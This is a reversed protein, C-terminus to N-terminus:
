NSAFGLVESERIIVFNVGDHSVKDGTYKSFIIKDGAKVEIPRIRGKKSQHGRGVSVVYGQVNDPQIATDVLIIGGPSTQPGDAIEVLIRDDLPQMWPQSKQPRVKSASSASKAKPKLSVKKSAPKVKTTTAAKAKVPKMKTVKAKLQKKANTKASAAAKKKTAKAIPKAKAKAAQKTGNKKAPKSAVKKTPKKIPAV